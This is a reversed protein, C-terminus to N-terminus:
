AQIGTIFFLHARACVCVCVCVSERERERERERVCVCVCVCVFCVSCVSCVCVYGDLGGLEERGVGVGVWLARAASNLPRRASIPDAGAGGSFNQFTLAMTGKSYM